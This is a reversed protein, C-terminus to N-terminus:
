GLWPESHRRNPLIRLCPHQADNVGSRLEKIRLAVKAVPAVEIQEALHRRATCAM